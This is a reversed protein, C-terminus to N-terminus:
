LLTFATLVSLVLYVYKVSQSAILIITFTSLTGYITEAKSDNFNRFGGLSPPPHIKICQSYNNSTIYYLMQTITHLLKVVAGTVIHRRM